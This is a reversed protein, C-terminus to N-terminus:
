RTSRRVTANTSSSNGHVISEHQSTHHETNAVSPQTVVENSQISSSDQPTIELNVVENSTTPTVIYTDEQSNDSVSNHQVPIDEIPGRYAQTAFRARVSDVHRRITQGNEM